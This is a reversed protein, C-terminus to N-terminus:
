AATAGRRGRSSFRMIIYMLPFLYFGLIELIDLLSILGGQTIKEMAQFHAPSALSSVIAAVSLIVAFNMALRSGRYVFISTIFVLIDAGATAYTLTVPTLSYYKLLFAGIAVTAVSLWMVAALKKRYEVM